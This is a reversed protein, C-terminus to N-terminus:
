LSFQWNLILNISNTSIKDSGDDTVNALGLNDRLEINLEHSRNLKFKTGFGLNIGYDLTEYNHHYDKPPKEGKITYGEDIAFAVFAGATAYYNERYDLYYKLNVPVAIYNLTTTIRPNGSVTYEIGVGDPGQYIGSYSFRTKQTASKVEYNVGATFSLRQTLPLEMAVGVLYGFGYKFGGAYGDGRIDAMNPGANFGLKLPNQASVLLPLAILFLFYIKKM